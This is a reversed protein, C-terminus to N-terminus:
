DWDIDVVLEQDLDIDMVLETENELDELESNPFFEMKFNNEHSGQGSSEGCSKMEDGSEM